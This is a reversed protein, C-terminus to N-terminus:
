VLGLSGIINRQFNTKLEFRLYYIEFENWELCGILFPRFLISFENM